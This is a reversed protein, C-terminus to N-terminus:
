GASGKSVRSVGSEGQQRGIGNERQDLQDGRCVGEQFRPGGGQGDSGEGAPEFQIGGRGGRNPEFQQLM